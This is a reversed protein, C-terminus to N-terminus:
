AAARSRCWVPQRLTAPLSLPCECGAAAEESVSCAMSQKDTDDGAAAAAAAHLPEVTPPMGCLQTNGPRPVVNLAAAFASTSTWGPMPITGQLNNGQLQLEQLAAM